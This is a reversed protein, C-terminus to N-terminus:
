ASNQHLKNVHGMKRGARTEKKGYLHLKHNAKALYDHWKEVDDGILNFMTGPCIVKASGLPLGCICRLLQEFQSTSCADMTIHGSNHPRPAIENVYLQNNQDIFFEITLLGVVELADAIKKATRLAQKELDESIKAPFQTQDLIGNKHTNKFLPFAKTKGEKSRAIVVSIETKLDILAELVLTHEQYQKWIKSLDSNKDLREQGKGDYGFEATKLIAQGFTELTTALMEQSTIEKYPATTIGLDSIFDKERLRHQAIYLAQWGPYTPTINQLIEITQHPINEFELTIVDVNRAFKILEGEDHYSAITSYKSVEVAPPNSVDSYVHTHYGMNAAAIATMRGLQGGGLIGITSGPPLINTM